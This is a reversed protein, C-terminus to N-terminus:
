PTSGGTKDNKAQVFKLQLDSLVADLFQAEDTTLNSRTKEKLMMLLDINFQAVELNKETKGTSPHPELGLAMVASSAMSLVLTSFSAPLAEM